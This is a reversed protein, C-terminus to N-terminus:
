FRFNSDIVDIQTTPKILLKIGAHWNRKTRKNELMRPVTSVKGREWELSLLSTECGTMEGAAPTDEIGVGATLHQAKRM